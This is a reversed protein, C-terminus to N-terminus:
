IRIVQKVKRDRGVVMRLQCGPRDKFVGKRMSDTYLEYAPYYGDVFKVVQPSTMGAEPDGREERLHDEQELRWGYVYGVDESDIQIFADFLDTIADYERLKENVFQLHELKHKKLTRNPKSQKEEVVEPKLSRFGM